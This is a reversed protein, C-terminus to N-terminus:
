FDCVTRLKINYTDRQWLFNKGRRSTVPILNNATRLAFFFVTKQSLSDHRVFRSKESINRYRWCSGHHRERTQVTLIIIQKNVFVARLYLIRKHWAKNENKTGKYLKKGLLICYHHKNCPCKCHTVLNFLNLLFLWAMRFSKRGFNFNFITKTISLKLIEVTFFILDVAM